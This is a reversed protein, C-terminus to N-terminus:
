GKTIDQLTIKGTLSDATIKYEKEETDKLKIYVAGSGSTGNTNFECVPPSSPFTIDFINADGPLKTEGKVIVPEGEWGGADDREVRYSDAQPYANNTFVIRHERNTNVAKYRALQMQEVIERVAAKLRMKPVQSIIAPMGIASVAGIIASVAIIEILTYGRNNIGYCVM